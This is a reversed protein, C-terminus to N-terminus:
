VTFLKPKAFGICDRGYIRQKNAKCDKLFTLVVKLEHAIGFGSKTWLGSISQQGRFKAVSHAIAMHLSM